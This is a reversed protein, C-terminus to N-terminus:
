QGHHREEEIFRLQKVFYKMIRKLLELEFPRLRRDFEMVIVKENSQLRDIRPMGIRTDQDSKAM